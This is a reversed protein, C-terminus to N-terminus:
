FKDLKKVKGGTPKWGSEVSQPIWILYQYFKYFIALDTWNDNSKWDSLILQTLERNDEGFLEWAVSDSHTSLKIDGQHAMIMFKASYPHNERYRRFKRKRITASFTPEMELFSLFFLPDGIKPLPPV